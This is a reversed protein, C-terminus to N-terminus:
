VAIWERHVTGSESVSWLAVYAGDEDIVVWRAGEAVEGPRIRTNRNGQRHEMTGNRIAETIAGNDVWCGYRDACTEHIGFSTFPRCLGQLSEWLKEYVFDDVVQFDEPDALNETLAERVTHIEEPRGRTLKLFAMPHHEQLTALMPGAISVAEGSGESVVQGPRLPIASRDLAKAALSRAYHQSETLKM